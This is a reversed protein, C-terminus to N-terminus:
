AMIWQDMREQQVSVWNKIVLELFYIAIHNPVKNNGTHYLTLHDKPAVSLGCITIHSNESLLIAINSM